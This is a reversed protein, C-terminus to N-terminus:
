TQAASQSESVAGPGRGTGDINELGWKVIEKLMPVTSLGKDTATYAMRSRHNGYPAKSVLGAKELKHLRDTLINTAIKEPSELFQEFRSKKFFVIDRLVLLTWKDGLLDLACAIPCHSRRDM